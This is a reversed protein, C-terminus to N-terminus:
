QESLLEQLTKTARHLTVRVAGQKKGMVEAIEKISLEEVYRLLLVEQYETKLTKITSLLTAAEMEVNIRDVDPNPAGLHLMDDISQETTAGQKRYHDIIMNRAMRYMLGSLSQVHEDEHTILYEWLKLFLESTIDEATSRSGVKYSIFRFIPVVHADYLEAFAQQDKQKQIRHLLLRSSFRNM